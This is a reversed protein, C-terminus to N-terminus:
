KLDSTESADKSKFWASASGTFLYILGVLTILTNILGVVGNAMGNDFLRTVNILMIILGIVFLVAYLIRAWNHRRAIMFVIFWGVAFIVVNIIIAITMAASHSIETSPPMAGFFVDMIGAVLGLVLGVYLLGSGIKVSKPRGIVSM